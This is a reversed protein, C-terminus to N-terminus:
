RAAEKPLLIAGVGLRLYGFRGIEQEDEFLTVPDTFGADQPPNTAFDAANIVEASFPESWVTVHPPRLDIRHKGSRRVHTGGRITPAPMPTPLQFVDLLWTDQLLGRSRAFEHTTGIDPLVYYVCRRVGRSLQQLNLMQRHPADFRRLGGIIKNSAKVQFIFLVGGFKTCLDFGM